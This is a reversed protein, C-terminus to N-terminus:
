PKDTFSFGGVDVFGDGPEKNYSFIAYQPGQFTGTQWDYALKFEGGLEAWVKGDVSYSCVARSAKFDMETRLHIVKSALAEGSVRVDVKSGEKTDEIVNMGLSLKGDSGCTVAIHGNFKGLTGFGCVDGPKLNKLDLQVEGRSWPGQGKQTLTNRATWFADSKTPKLRLCGKRATLSWRSDDPNHNWEWQLGLTPSNFDDSTAPQKVPKGQVPKRAKAPVKGPAEKTGWVPWDNEWFVPSINTMRGVSPDDIMVFGFWNGDALDVLAGQHGGTRDDIQDKTEWPGELSKARSVTLALKGPIANFLYYWEGRKVIKSGEAGKNFHVKKEDTVKTFDGNLTLLTVTGDWGGSTAIYGKGDPEIYFAPDFAPRDLEHCTWKGKPDKTQYIRTHQGVPTVVVYFIGKHHRISPAFVGSRYANGNKLDYQERGELRDVVHSIIEWNVLDKSHLIRLGPSNAFTTTAFYFDEGVRIIDPDPYDAHLPPNTFTGDGNDSQWAQAGTTLLLAIPILKLFNKPHKM